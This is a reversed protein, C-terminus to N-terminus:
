PPPLRRLAEELGHGIVDGAYAVRGEADVLVATPFGPLGYNRFASEAGIAVPPAVRNRRVFQRATEPDDHVNLMWVSVGPHAQALANLGPIADISYGCHATWFVLLAPRGRLDSLSLSDSRGLVPLTWAPADSGLAVLPVSPGQQPARTDPTVLPAYSWASPPPVTAQANLLRVRRRMFDGNPNIQAYEIPLGSTRDVTLRHTVLRPRTLRTLSGDVNLGTSPVRIEIVDAGAVASPVSVLTASDTRALDALGRRLAYLTGFFYRNPLRDPSDLRTTDLTNRVKDFTFSAAGDSAFVVSPTEIRMRAGFATSADFVLHGRSELIQHYDESAYNLELTQEFTVSQLADLRDVARRIVAHAPALPAQARTPWAVLAALCM